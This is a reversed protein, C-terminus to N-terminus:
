RVNATQGFSVDSYLYSDPSLDLLANDSLDYRQLNILNVSMEPLGQLRQAFEHAKLTTLLSRYVQMGDTGQASVDLRKSLVMTINPDNNRADLSIAPIKFFTLSQNLQQLQKADVHRYNPIFMADVSMSLRGYCDAIAREIATKDLLSFFVECNSVKINKHKALAEVLEYDAAKRGEETNEYIIGIRKFRLIEQALDLLYMKHDDEHMQEGFVQSFDTIQHQTGYRQQLNKQLRGVLYPIHLASLNQWRDDQWVKFTYKKGRLEGEEDFAQIGTIGVWAPMYHLTSSLLAPLTSGAREIAVALLHVSDYGQAANYDPEADYKKRYRQRFQQQSANTKEPTYTSPVITNEAAAGATELYNPHNFTDNGLIPHQIGMERLQKVMLGAPQGPAAIFVADFAENRFQSIISRYNTEKDFFSARKVLDINQKIAAEEFLFALERNLDDRTYLVVLKRYGLTSAISAIQEAMIQASPLMRFTYQFNHQTLGQATAFPPMFIIQSREYIVSAPVAIRSSRHGLVATIRPNAAIRRITPKIDEFSAGDQEINAILTRGLLKQPRQNVEEVALLVGQLFSSKQLDQFAVIHINGTNQRAFLQRREAMGSFDPNCAALFSIVLILAGLRWLLDSLLGAKSM